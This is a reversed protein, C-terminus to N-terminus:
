ASFIDIFNEFDRSKRVMEVSDEKLVAVYPLYQIFSSAMVFTYAGVNDIVIYDGVDVKQNTSCRKLLDSEMCSAGSFHVKAEHKLLSEDRTVIYYPLNFDAMNQRVHFMTGDTQAIRRDDRHKIDHVRAIYSMSSAAVSMGPEIIIYPKHEKFWDIGNLYAIIQKAYEEYTPVHRDRFMGEPVPGFFGGGIDIYKPNLCYTQAVEILRKGIQHYNFIARNKSSTHGHLCVIECDLKQLTSIVEDLESDVFGFRGIKEEGYIASVGNEDVIPINVRIGVQVPKSPNTERIKALHSLEYFSDINVLAGDLIATEFEDYRKIPSNMIIDEAAFGVRKAIQYELYSVVEAKFGYNKSLKCIYPVYNTKFSYSVITRNYENLFASKIHQINDVFMEENILFCPTGVQKYVMDCQDITLKKM